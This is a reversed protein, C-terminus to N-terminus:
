YVFPLPLHIMLCSSLMYFPNISCTAISIFFFAHADMLLGAFDWSFLYYYYINCPCKHNRWLVLIYLLIRMQGNSANSAFPTWNCWVFFSWVFPCNFYCLSCLLSLCKQWYLTIWDIISNFIITDKALVSFWPCPEWHHFKSEEKVLQEFMSLVIRVQSLIKLNYRISMSIYFQKVPM